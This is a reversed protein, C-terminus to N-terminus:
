TWYANCDYILGQIYKSLGHNTKSAKTSSNFEHKINLAHWYQIWPGSNHDKLWFSQDITQDGWKAFNQLNEWM